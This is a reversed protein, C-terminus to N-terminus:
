KEYYILNFISGSCGKLLIEELIMIIRKGMSVKPYFSSGNGKRDLYVVRGLMANKIMRRCL